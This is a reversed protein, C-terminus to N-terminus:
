FHPPNQHHQKYEQERATASRFQREKGLTRAPTATTSPLKADHEQKNRTKEKRLTGTTHINYAYLARTGVNKEKRRTAQVDTQQRYMQRTAQKLVLRSFLREGTGHVAGRTLRDARFALSAGVIGVLM